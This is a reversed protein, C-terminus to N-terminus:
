KHKNFREGERAREIQTYLYKTRIDALTAAFPWKGNRQFKNLKEFNISKRFCACSNQFPKTPYVFSDVSPDVDLPFNEFNMKFTCRM